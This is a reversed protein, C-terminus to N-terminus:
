MHRWTVRIPRLQALIGPVLSPDLTFRFTHAQTGPDPTIEVMGEICDPTTWTLKVVLYPETAILSATGSRTAHLCELEAAFRDLDDTLIIGGSVDVIAGAAGCHATARLWTEAEQAEEAHESGIIWLAFPGVRLDPTRQTEPRRSM